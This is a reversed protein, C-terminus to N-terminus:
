SGMESLIYPGIVRCATWFIMPGDVLLVWPLLLPNSLTMRVWIAYIAVAFFHYILLMPSPVIGALLSVPGDVCNGGMQFYRFCGLQLAKLNRDNAAFLAYLAMSLINIVSSLSKRQYHFKKMAATVAKTDSLSPVNQPSLLEAALVVDTFGVTMGGGTLPHRMNLADGIIIMGSARNRTAPLFSNPMGKIASAEIAKAFSPQVSKPLSPLVVTTLHNKVGGASPSASPCHEPIDILARTEHTGIQYLLTPSIESLIVHGHYPLPM